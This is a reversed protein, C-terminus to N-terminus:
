EHFPEMRRLVVASCHGECSASTVLVHDARLPVRGFVPRVQGITPYPTGPIGSLTNQQMDALACLVNLAGSAGCCEGTFRKYAAVPTNPGLAAAIGAAELRDGIRNGSGGSAVFDIASPEIEAQDCAARIVQALVSEDCSEDQVAAPDFGNACGAIEALAPARRRRASEVSELLFLACGEGMVIGDSDVAFPRATGARSLMGTHVGDLLAYYTIEELGGALIWDLYQSRVMDFAYVLADLGANFGTSVTSNLGPAGYRISACGAAANVVTNPFAQPNATSVGNLIADSYFDGLSQLGGFATGVCFGPRAGEPCGGMLSKFGLEAACLLLKTVGDLNRLGQRGLVAVPDLGAPRFCPVPNPLSHLGLTQVRVPEPADALAALVGELSTGLASVTGVATILVPTRSESM